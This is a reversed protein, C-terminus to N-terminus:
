ILKKCEVLNKLANKYDVNIRMSYISTCIMTSSTPQIGISKNDSIKAGVGSSSGGSSKENATITMNLKNTAFAVHADYNKTFHEMVIDDFMSFKPMYIRPHKKVIACVATDINAYEIISTYKGFDQHLKSFGPENLLPDKCLLSSLSLLITSITQCSTWQEGKWTNLISICVKGSTYLNPNFRVQGNNTCFEVKPPTFPYNHPFLFEFFYFGGFYPTDEPGVILAYGKLMDAEDHQYYIGHESLPNKIINKVDNVLRSITEKSIIESMLITRKNYYM